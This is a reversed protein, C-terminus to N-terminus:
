KVTIPGDIILTVVLNESKELKLFNNEGTEWEPIHFRGRESKRFLFSRSVPRPNSAIKWSSSSELEAVREIEMKRRRPWLPM